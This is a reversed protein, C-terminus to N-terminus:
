RSEAAQILFLVFLLAALAGEVVVFARIIGGWEGPQPVTGDSIVWVFCLCAASFAAAMAMVIVGMARDIM